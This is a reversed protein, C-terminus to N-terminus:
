GIQAFPAAYVFVKNAMVIAIDTELDLGLVTLDFNDPNSYDYSAFQYDFIGRLRLRDNYSWWTLGIGSGTITDFKSNIPDPYVLSGLNSGNITFNLGFSGESPFDSAEAHVCYATIFAICFVLALRRM